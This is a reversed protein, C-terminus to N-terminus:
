EGKELATSYLATLQYNINTPKGYEAVKEVTDILDFDDIADLLKNFREASVTDGGLSFSRNMDKSVWKILRVMKRYIDIRRKQEQPYAALFVSLYEIFGQEDFRVDSQSSESELELDKLETEELEIRRIVNIHTTDTKVGATTDTKDGVTTDTKVGATTDTKVGETTDIKVGVTTDTKVGVTTDTKVGETTDTKVGIDIANKVYIVNEGNVFGREILDASILKDFYRIATSRSCREEGFVDQLEKVSFKVYINGNEDHYSDSQMSLLCRNLLIAYTIKVNIPLYYFVSDKDFLVFPMMIFDRSKTSDYLGNKTKRSKDKIFDVYDNLYLRYQAGKHGNFGGIKASREILGFDLLEKMIAAAKHESVNMSEIIEKRSFYFFVRGNEDRYTKNDISRQHRNEFLSYAIKSESSLTTFSSDTMLYRYLKFFRFKRCNTTGVNFFDYSM